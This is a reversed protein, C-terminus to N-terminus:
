PLMIEAALASSCPLFQHRGHDLPLRSSGLVFLTLVDAFPSYVTSTSGGEALWEENLQETDEKRCARACSIPIRTWVEMLCSSRM